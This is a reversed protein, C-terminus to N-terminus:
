CAEPPGLPAWGPPSWPMPAGHALIQHSGDRPLQQGAAEEHTQQRSLAPLLSHLPRGQM